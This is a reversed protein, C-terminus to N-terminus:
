SERDREFARQLELFDAVDVCFPIRGALHLVPRNREDVLLHRDHHDRRLVPHVVLHDALYLLHARAAADDNGDGAFTIVEDGEFACCTM